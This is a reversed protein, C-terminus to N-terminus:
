LMLKEKLLAQQSILVKAAICPHGDASRIMLMQQGRPFSLHVCTGQAPIAGTQQHTQQSLETRIGLIFYWTSCPLKMDVLGVTCVCM